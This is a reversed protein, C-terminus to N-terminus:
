LPSITSFKPSIRLNTFKYSIFSNKLIPNIFVVKQSDSIMHTNWNLFINNLFKNTSDIFYFWISLEFNSFKKLLGNPLTLLGNPIRRLLILPKLFCFFLWFFIYLNRFLPKILMFESSIPRCPWERFLSIIEPLLHLLWLIYDLNM